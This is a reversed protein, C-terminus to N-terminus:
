RTDEQQVSVCVVLHIKKGLSCSLFAEESMEKLEVNAVNLECYKIM